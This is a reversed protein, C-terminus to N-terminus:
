RYRGIRCQDGQRYGRAYAETYGACFGTAYARDCSRYADAPATGCFTRGYLGDHYGQQHGRARGARLGLEYPSPCPPTYATARHRKPAHVVYRTTVHVHRRPGSSRHPVNGHGYGGTTYCPSPAQRHHPRRHSADASTTMVGLSALLAFAVVVHMGFRRKYHHTM